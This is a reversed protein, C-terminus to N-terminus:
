CATPGVPGMVVPPRPPNFVAGLVAPGARIRGHSRHHLRAAHAMSAAGGIPGSGVSGCALSPLAGEAARGIRDTRPRFHSRGCPFRPSNARDVAQLGVNLAVLCCRLGVGGARLLDRSAFSSDYSRAPHWCPSSPTDAFIPIARSTCISHYCPPGAAAVRAGLYRRPGPPSFSATAPLM